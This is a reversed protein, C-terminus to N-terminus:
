KVTRLFEEAVQSNQEGASYYNKWLVVVDAGNFVASQVERPSDGGAIAVMVDFAGKVKNILHIPLPKNADREEDVGRHLLVVAPLRKLRRLVQYPKEVNMMDIFSDVSQEECAAIFADLTEVPAQGLAVVASAGASSAINVETAGRDMVKMDAVIYPTRRVNGATLRASWWAYLQRIGAAGYSKILPTGAEILIRESAPLRSLIQHADYLTRNLAVQLYHTKPSLM